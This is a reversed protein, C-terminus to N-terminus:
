IMLLDFVNEINEKIIRGTIKPTNINLSTSPEGVPLVQNPQTLTTDANIATFPNINILNVLSPFVFNLNMNGTKINAIFIASATKLYNWTKRLYLVICISAPPTTSYPPIHFISFQIAPIKHITM